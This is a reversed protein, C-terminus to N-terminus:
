QVEWLVSAIHGAMHTLDKTWIKGHKGEEFQDYVGSEHGDFAVDAIVTPMGKEPKRSENFETHTILVWKGDYQARIEDFTLLKREHLPILTHM